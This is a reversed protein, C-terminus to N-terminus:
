LPLPLCQNSKLGLPPISPTLFNLDLKPVAVKGVGWKCSLDPTNLSTEATLCRRRTLEHTQGFPYFPTAKAPNFIQQYPSRLWVVERRNKYSSGTARARRDDILKQNLVEARGIEGIDRSSM